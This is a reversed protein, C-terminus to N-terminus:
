LRDQSPRDQMVAEREQARTPSITFHLPSSMIREKIVYSDCFFLVVDLALLVAIGALGTLSSYLENYGIVYLYFVPAFLMLTAVMAASSWVTASKVRVYVLLPTLLTCFLVILPVGLITPNDYFLGAM